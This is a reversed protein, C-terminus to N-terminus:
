LCSQESLDACWYFWIQRDCQEQHFGTSEISISEIKYLSYLSLHEPSLELAEELTKQWQPLAAGPLGYILDLNLNDCGAARAMKVAERAESGTHLRGLLALQGDDLSQIGLSLRNIGLGKIAALYSRDVTGPNGELTIEIGEPVAFRSHIATFIDELQGASLLSPTGGGFYVTHLKQGCGRLALERRLASVYAPVEAERGAHSVFSCYGCKRRCFPIHIYLSIM